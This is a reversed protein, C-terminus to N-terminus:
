SSPLYFVADKRQSVPAALRVATPSSQSGRAADCRAILHRIEDVFYHGAIVSEFEDDDQTLYVSGVGDPPDAVAAYFAIFAQARHEFVDYDDIPELETTEFNLRYQM